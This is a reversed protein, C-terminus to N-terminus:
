QKEIRLHHIYEKEGNKKLLFYVRFNGKQTKLKGIVSKAQSKGGNHIIGFANEKVPPFSAFFSSVIQQAQAKSYVNDNDLVVLEVNKNFYEALQKADGTELGTIIGHPVQAFTKTFTLGTLLIIFFIIKQLSM